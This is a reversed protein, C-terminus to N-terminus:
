PMYGLRGWVAIQLRQLDERGEPTAPPLNSVPPFSTGYAITDVGKWKWYESHGDAFSLTTGDSHRVPPPDWWMEISYHVAYSDPTISGEDIFVARRTPRRIQEMKKIWQIGEKTGNRQRGNMGDVITYNRLEYSYGSPCHYLKLDKCYPWLAGQKIAKERFDKSIQHGGGYPDPWDKNVWPPENPRSIGAAGNVIFGDNDNAFQTWALTLKKLNNLCVTRQARRRGGSSIAGINIVLFILCVLVAFIDKITLIIKSKMM